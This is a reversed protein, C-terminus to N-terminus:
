FKVRSLLQPPFERNFFQTYQYRAQRILMDYGNRVPCGMAAARKLFPTVEPQYVLDMVAEKGSFSYLELPDRAPNGEMGAPTTQIIIDSFKKMLDAGRNDLTGWLFKYSAALDRARQPSRNLILARAGLRYVEAAVARAAGGAGIITVKRGKLNKKQIFELLSDSFGTADTNTGAWGQADRVITNCAGISEVLDSEHTLYPLIEEKYPVTVSAGSLELASSLKMFADISDAPFPVYVADVDELGFITNFFRPSGTVKLPYGVVGYIKTNGTIERFRYLEALERPDLQGPAALPMDPENLASTFSIQSGLREALIRTFAGFHGM